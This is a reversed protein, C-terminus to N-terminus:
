PPSAVITIDGSLKIAANCTVLEDMDGADISLTRMFGSAAWTSATSNSWTVTCTEAASGAIIAPTTGPACKITAALEGPDYTEGRQFTKGGTTGFHSNAVSAVEIGDWSLDHIEAFFGTDFTITIGTGIDAM